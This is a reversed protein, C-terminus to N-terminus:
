EFGQKFLDDDASLSGGGGSGIDTSYSQQSPQTGEKFPLFYSVNVMGDKSGERFNAKAMVVGEPQPFDQAQYDDEVGKRYQLWIPLAARSGTEFKGMPIPEDFGVFVGTLLYPSYGMFWADREENTTGTKGAVPRGLTLARRATGSNVVEQMLKAIIFATQPSIAEHTVPETKYLETGWVDEVKLVQRAEVWSGMRPFVTYAQCLSMLTISATGLAVSLDPEFPAELGLAKARDIVKRIGIKQAVRITVLNKSKVLATRLSLYGYFSNEYNEPRWLTGDSNEFVIPTDQMLTAPTMGADIAASYVIPKFASGPQRKAQTARNFESNQYSYGGSLALVEGNTPDISVIAGQVKPMIELNLTWADGEKEPPTTISAYVIDGNNLVKRVDTVAPVYDPATAPNPKRCWSVSAVPIIGKMTGFRVRAKDSGVQDVVVKVWDGEKFDATTRTEELLFRGQEVGDEIH